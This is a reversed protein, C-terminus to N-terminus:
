DKPTLVEMTDKAIMLEENTRIVFTRVKSHPASIEIEKYTLTQHVADKNKESDIRVGLSDLNDLAKKRVRWDHEGIGGTFTIIDVGNLAAIYQGIYLKIKYSFIDVTLKAREDYQYAAKQIDRFDSSIGSIGLFGSKKNLINMVSTVDLKENDMIFSIIQPDISGCRTGMVLGELPTFGMTTDISEGRDIACISAGSGLHCSIIKLEELPKNVIQSVKNAVYKHSTGHFGYKRIKYKDYYENPLGYTYAYKPMTQHFATDFVAVMPITPLLNRCAEIGVINAPNHLPAIKACEGIKNLVDDDIIVAQQFYEGGHVVRHGVASIDTLSEVIGYEKDALYKLVLQVAASHDPLAQQIIIEEQDLTQHELFSGDLGIRDCIGKALVKEDKMSILQYKLSSSGCNIVLIIV